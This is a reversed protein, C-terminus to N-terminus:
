LDELSNLLRACKQGEKTLFYKVNENTYIEVLEKAILEEFGEKMITGFVPNVSFVNALKRYTYCNKRGVSSIGQRYTQILINQAEHSLEYM